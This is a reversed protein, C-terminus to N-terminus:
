VNSWHKAFINKSLPVDEKHLNLLSLEKVNHEKAFLSLSSIMKTKPNSTFKIEYADLYTGQDVVLDVELGNITRYFYCPPREGNNAFEKIKEMVVMCM